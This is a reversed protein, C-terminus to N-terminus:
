FRTEGYIFPRVHWVGESPLTEDIEAMGRKILLRSPKIEGFLGLKYM